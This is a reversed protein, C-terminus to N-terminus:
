EAAQRTPTIEMEQFPEAMAVLIRRPGVFAARGHAALMNDLMLIDGRQWSFTVTAKRYAERIEDLTSNEIPSGDGYCANIDLPYDSDVVVELLSDRVSPELSSIHHVHAQNFWVQEDTKPHIGIAPRVQRTRLGDGDLWQLQLGARACYDEVVEREATRFVTQWPLGVGQGYSRVYMIQSKQFRERIKPAIFHLVKRSDAIPTEGGQLAPLDCYFLVKMPWNHAYSLENHLAISQDAPYETSTYIHRGVETRPTSAENYNMLTPSLTNAFREFESSSLNLFGRFLIGGHKMLQNEVFAINEKVWLVLDLEEVNPEIVMPLPQEPQLERWRVLSEPELKITKRRKESLSNMSFRQSKDSDM